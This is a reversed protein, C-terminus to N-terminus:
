LLTYRSRRYLMSFYSYRQLYYYLIYFCHIPLYIIFTYINVKNPSVWLLLNKITEIYNLINCMLNQVFEVTDRLSFLTSITSKKLETERLLDLLASFVFMTPIYNNFHLLIHIQYLLSNKRAPHLRKSLQYMIRPVSGM